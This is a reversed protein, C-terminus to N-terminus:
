RKGLLSAAGAGLIAGAPGGLVAGLIGGAGILAISPGGRAPPMPIDGESLGSDDPPPGGVEAEDGRTALGLLEQALDNVRGVVQSVLGVIGGVAGSISTPLQETAAALNQLGSELAQTVAGVVAVPAQEGLVKAKAIQAKVTDPLSEFNPPIGLLKETFVAFAERLGEPGRDVLIGIAAAGAQIAGGATQLYAKLEGSFKGSVRELGAGIVEYIGAEKFAAINKIADLIEDSAEALSLIIAQHVGEPLRSAIKRLAWRVLAPKGNLGFDILTGALDAVANFLPELIKSIVRQPGGRILAQAIGATIGVPSPPVYAGMYLLAPPFVLGALASLVGFKIPELYATVCLNEPEYDDPSPLDGAIFRLGAGAAQVTGVIIDGVIRIIGLLGGSEKDPPNILEIIRIAEAVQADTQALEHARRSWALIEQSSARGLPLPPVAVALTLVADRVRRKAEAIQEALWDGIPPFPENPPPPEPVIAVQFPVSHTALTYGDDYYYRAEYPGGLPLPAFELSGRFGSAPVYKWDISPSPPDGVRYLGIWDKSSRGFPASWHIAVPAGDKVTLALPAVAPLQSEDPPPADPPLLVDDGGQAAGFGRFYAETPVRRVRM